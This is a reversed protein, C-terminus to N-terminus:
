LQFGFKLAFAGLPSTGSPTKLPDDVGVWNIGRYSMSINMAFQNTVYLRVGFGASYLVGSLQTPDINYAYGAEGFLYPTTRGDIFFYRGDAQGVAYVQTGFVDLGPGAGIYFRPHQYGFLTTANFGADYTELPIGIGLETINTFGQTKLRVGRYQGQVLTALLLFTLLLLMKLAPITVAQVPLSIARTM